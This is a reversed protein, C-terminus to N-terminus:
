RKREPFRKYYREKDLYMQEDAIHMAKRIDLDDIIDSEGPPNCYYIPYM